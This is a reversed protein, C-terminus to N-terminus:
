QGYLILFFFFFKTQRRSSSPNFSWHFKQNQKLSIMHKSKYCHLKGGCRSLLVLNILVRALIAGDTTEFQLHKTFCLLMFTPKRHSITTRNGLCFSLFFVLWDQPFVSLLFEPSTSSVQRGARLTSDVRRQFWM